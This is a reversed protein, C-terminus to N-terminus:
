VNKLCVKKLGRGTECSHVYPKRETLWDTLWDCKEPDRFLKLLEENHEHFKFCSCIAIHLNHVDNRKTEVYLIRIAKDVFLSAVSLPSKNSPLLRTVLLFERLFVIRILPLLMLYLSSHVHWQWCFPWNLKVRIMFGAHCNLMSCRHLFKKQNPARCLPLSLGKVLCFM